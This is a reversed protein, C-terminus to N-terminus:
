KRVGPNSAAVEPNTAFSRFWAVAHLFDLNYAFYRLVYLKDKFNKFMLIYNVYVCIYVANKITPTFVM